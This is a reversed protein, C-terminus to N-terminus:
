FLETTQGFIRKSRAGDALAIRRFCGEVRGDEGLKAVTNNWYQALWEWKAYVDPAEIMEDIRSQIIKQIKCGDKFLTHRKAAEDVPGQSNYTALMLLYNLYWVGDRDRVIRAHHLADAVEDESAYREAAKKASAGLIVRPYKAITSELAYAKNVGRGFVIKDDHYMPGITVGGRVLVGMRLLKGALHDLVFLIHWLGQSDNRASLILSDSFNQTQLDTTGDTKWPLSVDNINGLVEILATRKEENKDAEEVLGKFGLIDVFAVVRNEYQNPM